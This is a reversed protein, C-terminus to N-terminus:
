SHKKICILKEKILYKLLNKIDKEAQKESVNYEHTIKSVIKIEDNNQVILDWIRGGLEDLTYYVGTEVNLLVTEAGSKKWYINKKDVILMSENNRELDRNHAIYWLCRFFLIKDQGFFM